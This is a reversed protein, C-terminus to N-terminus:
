VNAAVEEEAVEEVEVNAGPPEESLHLAQAIGNLAEGADQTVTAAAVFRDPRLFVM